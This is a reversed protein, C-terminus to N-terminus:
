FLNEHSFNNYEAIDITYELFFERQLKQINKKLTDDLEQVSFYVRTLQKRYDKYHQLMIFPYSVEKNINLNVINKTKTFFSLINDTVGLGGQSSQLLSKPSQHNIVTDCLSYYEEKKAGNKCSYFMEESNQLMSFTGLRISGQICEKLQLRISLKITNQKTDISWLKYLIAVDQLYLTTSLTYCYKSDQQWLYDQVEVLDTIKKTLVSEIVSGGTFFDAAYSINSLEGHKITGFPLRQANLFISDLALGKNKLFYIKLNDKQFILKNDQITLQVDPQFSNKEKLPQQNSLNREFFDLAKQWKKQTTHTRYDSGWFHLLNQWKEKIKSNQIQLFYRYCLTNILNADRGCAAWRSLSYKDQKKIIIPNSPTNLMLTKDKIYTQLIQSPLVFTGINSLEKSLKAINEWENQAIKAETEYRGPRYNFIELDSSYIPIVQHKDDIYNQFFTFYDQQTQQSHITRQFQQFLISDTWLLPMKTQLGQVYLPTYSYDKKWEDHLAVSNNWEMMLAKYGVEAYIDVVSQSFVQENVYVITPTIGLLEKYVELGIQQNKLNVEYPVLPTIIQMYGSGVLEILKEQHLTKFLVLWSPRLEAIKQLSYGSFELAVKTKTEQVFYLLPFYTKDIVEGLSEEEIASFALNGHYLQYLTKNM